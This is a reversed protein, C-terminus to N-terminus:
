LKDMFGANWTVCKKGERIALKLVMKYSRRQRRWYHRRNIHEARTWKRVLRGMKLNEKLQAADVMVAVHACTSNTVVLEHMVVNRADELVM